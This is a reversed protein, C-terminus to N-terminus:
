TWVRERITKNRGFLTKKVGDLYKENWIVAEDFLGAVLCYEAAAGYALLGESVRRDGFCVEDEESFKGPYYSYRVKVTGPSTRFYGPYLKIKLRNGSLDEASVIDAADHSLASFEVTGNPAEVTEEALFPAYEAATQAICLNVCRAVLEAERRVADSSSPEDFHAVVDEKDLLHAAAKAINKFIM